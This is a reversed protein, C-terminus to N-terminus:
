AIGMTYKQEFEKNPDLVALSQVVFMREEEDLQPTNLHHHLIGWLLRRDRHSFTLTVETSIKM